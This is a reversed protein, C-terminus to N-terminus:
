ANRLEGLPAVGGGCLVKGGRPPVGKGVVNGDPIEAATCFAGGAISSRV